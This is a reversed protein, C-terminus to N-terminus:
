VRSVFLRSMNIAERNECTPPQFLEALLEDDRFRATYDQQINNRGIRGLAQITKQQTLTGTLDKGIVGHCFQYNTGYIYDSSAIIMYLKQEYALKKMIEIYESPVTATTDFVGVGMLLLIKWSNSINHLNAIEEVTHDDIDCTFAAPTINGVWKTQHDLTNPVYIRELSITQVRRRMAEIEAMMLQINQPIRHDQSMKNEKEADKGTSDEIDREVKEIQRNLKNNHEIAASLKTLLLEPIKSQQLYFRAIKNVDEALYITPGDTLTHADATTLLVGTTTSAAASAAIPFQISATRTIEQGTKAAATDGISHIKHIPAAAAASVLKPTRTRSLHAFITNWQTSAERIHGLVMLYYTKINSMTIDELQTFYERIRYRASTYEHSNVYIIFRTIEKLDFYKLLSKINGCHSVCNLIDAYNEFLNHPTVTYGNKNVLSVSKKTEYSSITHIEANPFRERFDEITDTLETERPLTACSLVINPIRNEAWNRHITEHLEHNEVDMTITPEDWYTIINDVSNFAMMYNMASIYSKIDCIMIEVKDGISNDVKQIMGSRRNKTYDKAAFYHLRIDGATECGFAFAIKKGMSIASKALALGVHRAVCVFIVRYQQSLGLPSMTKGTGTPAIYLILRSIPAATPSITDTAAAPANAGVSFLSFLQRQHDYLELDSYQIIYKNKEIYEHANEIIIHYLNEDYQVAYQIVAACFEQVYKNKQAIQSKNTQILTYLYFVYKKNATEIYQLIKKAFEIQIFEFIKERSSLINETIHEIRISDARKIKGGNGGVATSLAASKETIATNTKAYKKVVDQISKEFFTRYINKEMEETHPIKIFSSMSETANKRISLNYYGDIILQLITKEDDSVPIEIMNWETRTLKVQTLDM